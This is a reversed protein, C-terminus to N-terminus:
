GELVWRIRQNVTDSVPNGRNDTAPSFKARGRLIRCTTDDLTRSGSSSTVTCDTVRGNTGVTLRVMVAGEEEARIASM